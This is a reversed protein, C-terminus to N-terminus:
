QVSEYVVQGERWAERYILGPLDGVEKLRLESIVLIDMPMSIGKLGRRIRVSEERTNQVDNATIVLFDLDSHKGVKKKVYSGFLIIRRPRSIEVIKQLAAEVKEPTIAWSAAAKASM